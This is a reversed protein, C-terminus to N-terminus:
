EFATVIRDKGQNECTKFTPPTTLRSNKLLDSDRITRPTQGSFAGRLCLLLVAFWTIPALEPPTVADVEM